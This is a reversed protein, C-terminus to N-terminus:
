AAQDLAHEALYADLRTSVNQQLNRYFLLYDYIHYAGEPLNPVLAPYDSPDVDPVKVVSRGEDVYAGCLGPVEETINGDGNTFCAGLNESRDAPTADTRWNLPNIAYGQTGKPNIFTEEVEPAECDFSIVTGTDDERTAPISQPYEEVLEHTCPWGLAYVAVLQDRLTEDGFYERLLRYCMDAGQSFGALVIPRGDNENKLYYDFAASIDGYAIGLYQERDDASLGFAKISAQRYYPAFMRTVDEYIGRQRNLAGVFKSRLEEDDLSINYDDGHMDVTPCILLLDADKNEGIGNYAWMSEDSYDVAESAARVEQTVNATTGDEPASTQHQPGKICGALALLAGIVVAILGALRTTKM